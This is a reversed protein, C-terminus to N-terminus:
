SYAPQIGRGVPTDEQGFKASDGIHTLDGIALSSRKSDVTAHHSDKAHTFLVVGDTIGARMHPRGQSGSSNFAM